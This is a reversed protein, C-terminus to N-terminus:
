SPLAVALTACVSAEKLFPVYVFDFMAVTAEARIGSEGLLEGRNGDGGGM